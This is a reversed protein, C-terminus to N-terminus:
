ARTIELDGWIGLNDGIVILIGLVGPFRKGTEIAMEIDDKSKVSNGIRTALGDAFLASDAIICVADAKGLSLSPGVTASSTCVGYPKAKVKLKIAIKQSFSSKKAYVLAMRERLTKISIDGGNEIIFEDTLTSIDRGLYEAIAGAVTAMPGVGVQASSSIMEKIIPPAFPDNGIPVLSERFAPRELIYEELQRRYYLARDEIVKRLDSQTCCWLDTEKIRIEYCALDNPKTINRYFREEYM